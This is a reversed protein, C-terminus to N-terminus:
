TPLLVQYLGKNFPRYIYIYIFLRRVLGSARLWTSTFSSDYLHFNHFFKIYISTKKELNPKRALLHFFNLCHCVTFIHYIKILQWSIYFIYNNTMKKITYSLLAINTLNKTCLTYITVTLLYINKLSWIKMKYIFVFFM